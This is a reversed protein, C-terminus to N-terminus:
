FVILITSITTSIHIIWFRQARFTTGNQIFCFPFTLILATGEVGLEDRLKEYANSVTLEALQDEDVTAYYDTQIHNSDGIWDVKIEHNVNCKYRKSQIKPTTIYSPFEYFEKLGYKSVEDGNYFDFGNERKIKEVFEGEVNAYGVALISSPMKIHIDLNEPAMGSNYSKTDEDLWLPLSNILAIYKAGEPYVIEIRDDKNKSLIETIQNLLEESKDLFGADTIEDASVEIRHTQKEM